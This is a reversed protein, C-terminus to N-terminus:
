SRRRGFTPRPSTDATPAPVPRKGAAETSVLPQKKLVARWNAIAATGLLAIWGGGTAALLTWGYLSPVAIAMLAPVCAVIVLTGALTWWRSGLRALALGIAVNTLALLIFKAAVPYPLSAMAPSYDGVTFAAQIDFLLWNEWADCLAALVPLAATFSVAKLGTEHGLAVLGCGLFGAYLLMYLYDRENGTRMAALRGIQRPDSDPGFIAILDDQGGAFEFALVPAGYGPSAAFSNQPFSQGLLLGLLLTGIGFLLTMHWWRAAPLVDPIL